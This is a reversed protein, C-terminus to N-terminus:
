QKRRPHDPISAPDDAALFRNVVPALEDAETVLGLHGGQYVHLRADPILLRLLRANGLPILPDDDGTLILAPQRLLPLFPVSTWGAGAGLQYLYGLPSGVRSQDHMIATVRGPQTRATGGYLVPAVRRLYGPDLYRRPTAMKALVEPRAPLMIAGAATAVLVLRRCRRRQWFAFHQAAAGGWSIGLVDVTGYGLATLMRATLRCLGTFRYPRAPLPSGGVGPVDFRIVEVSPDLAAVFPELLDLSAGVGNFLLLPVRSGDGHRIAVRLRQGAVAIGRIEAGPPDGSPRRAFRKPTLM